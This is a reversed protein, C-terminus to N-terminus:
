KVLRISGRCGSDGIEPNIVYNQPQVVLKSKPCNININQSQVITLMVPDWGSLINQGTATVLGSDCGVAWTLAIISDLLSQSTKRFSEELICAVSM